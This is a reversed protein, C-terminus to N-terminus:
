LADKLEPDILSDTDETDVIRVRFSKGEPLPDDSLNFLFMTVNEKQRLSKGSRMHHVPQSLKPKRLGISIERPTVCFLLQCVIEGLEGLGVQSFVEARVEPGVRRVNKRLKQLDAATRCEHDAQNQRSSQGCAIANIPGRKLQAFVRGRLSAAFFIQIGLFVFQLMALQMGRPTQALDNGSDVTDAFLVRCQMTVMVQTKMSRVIRHQNAVAPGGIVQAVYNNHDDIEIGEVALCTPDIEIETGEPQFRTM